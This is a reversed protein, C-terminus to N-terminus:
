FIKRLFNGYGKLIKQFFNDNSTNEYIIKTKKSSVEENSGMKYMTISLFDDNEEEIVNYDFYYGKVDDAKYFKGNVVAGVQDKYKLSDKKPLVIYNYNTVIKTTTSSEVVNIKDQVARALGQYTLTSILTEKETNLNFTAKVGNNYYDYYTNSEDEFKLYTRYANVETQTALYDLSKFEIQLNDSKVFYPQYILIYVNTKVKKGTISDTIALGVSIAKHDSANLSPYMKDDTIEVEVSQEPALNLDNVVNETIYSRLSSSVYDNKYDADYLTALPKINLVAQSLDVFSEEIEKSSPSISIEFSYNVSEYTANITITKKIGNTKVATFTNKIMIESQPSLTVNQNFNNKIAEILAAASDYADILYNKSKLEVSYNLDVMVYTTELATNGKPKIVNGVKETPFTEILYMGSESLLVPSMYFEGNIKFGYNNMLPKGTIDKDQYKAFCKTGVNYKNNRTLPSIYVPESYVDGKYINLYSSFDTQNAEMANVSVLSALGLTSLVAGGLILKKKLYM